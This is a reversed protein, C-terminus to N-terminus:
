APVAPDSNCSPQLICPRERITRTVADNRETRAHSRQPTCARGGRPRLREVGIRRHNRLLIHRLQGLEVHAAVHGADKACILKLADIAQGPEGIKGYCTALLLNTQAELGPLNVADTRLSVLMAVADNWQGAKMALRARLYKAQLKGGFFAQSVGSATM